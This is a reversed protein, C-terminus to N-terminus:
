VYLWEIIEVLEYEYFTPSFGAHQVVIQDLEFNIALIDVIEGTEKIKGKKVM